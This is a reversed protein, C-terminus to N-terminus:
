QGELFKVYIGWIALDWLLYRTGFNWLMIKPINLNGRPLSNFDYAQLGISTFKKELCCFDLQYHWNPSTGLAVFVMLSSVFFDDGVLLHMSFFVFTLSFGMQLRYPILDILQNATTGWSSRVSNSWWWSCSRWSNGGVQVPTSRALCKVTQETGDLTRHLYLTPPSTNQRLTHM